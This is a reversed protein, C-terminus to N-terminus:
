PAIWGGEWEEDRNERSFKLRLHEKGALQLIELEFPVCKLVCFYDSSFEDPWNHADSPNDICEGPSVVPTYAKQAAGHVDSKWYNEAIDDKHHIGVEAKLTVQVKHHDHWFLMAAKGNEQLEQVKSTRSDTYLTLTGDETIERNILM